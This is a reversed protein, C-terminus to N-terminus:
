IYGEVIGETVGVTDGEGVAVLLLVVVVLLLMCSDADIDRDTVREALSVGELLIVGGSLADIVALTDEVCLIVGEPLADGVLLMVM